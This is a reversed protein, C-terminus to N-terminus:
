GGFLHDLDQLLLGMGRAITGPREARAEQDPGETEELSGAATATVTSTAAVTETPTVTATETVTATPAPTITGTATATPTATASPTEDFDAEAGTHAIETVDEGHGPGKPAAHAAESVEEGHYEPHTGTVEEVETPTATAPTGTPTATETLGDDAREDSGEGGHDGPRQWPRQSERQWEWQPRGPCRRLPQAVARRGCPLRARIKPIKKANLKRRGDM